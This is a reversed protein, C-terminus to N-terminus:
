RSERECQEALRLLLRAFERVQDVGMEVPDGFADVVKVHISAADEVRAYVTEPEPSKPQQQM